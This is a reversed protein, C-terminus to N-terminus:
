GTSLSSSSPSTPGSRRVKLDASYAYVAGERLRAAAEDKRTAVFESFSYEIRSAVRAPARIM